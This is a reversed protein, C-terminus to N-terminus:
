RAESRVRKKASPKTARKVPLKTSSRAPRAAAEEVQIARMSYLRGLMSRIFAADLAYQKKRVTAEGSHKKILERVKYKQGSNLDRFLEVLKPHAQVAFSHGYIAGLLQGEQVQFLVPESPDVWVTDTDKLERPEQKPAAELGLGSLRALWKRSVALRLDTGISEFAELMTNLNEPMEPSRRAKDPQFSPITQSKEVKSLRSDILKTADRQISEIWYHKHVAMLISLQLAPESGAESVHYYGQPIYLVDGPELDFTQAEGLISEYGAHGVLHPHRQLVEPAWMRFRKRGDLMVLLNDIPDEHVGFGTVETRSYWIVADTSEPVGIESYLGKVFGRAQRWLGIDWTHAKNLVVAFGRGNLAETVRRTYDEISADNSPLFGRADFERYSKDVFFRLAVQEGPKNASKSAASLIRFADHKALFETPFLKRFHVPQKRWYRAVFDPWNLQFPAVM